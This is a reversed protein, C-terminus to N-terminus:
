DDRVVGEILRAATELGALWGPDPSGMPDGYARVEDALQKRILPLMAALAAQADIQYEFRVDRDLREWTIGPEPPREYMAKASAEVIQETTITM